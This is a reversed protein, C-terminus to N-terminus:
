SSQVAARKSASQRRMFLVVVGAFAILAVTIAIAIHVYDPTRVVYQLETPNELNVDWQTFGDATSEGNTSTVTGPARVQLHLNLISMVMARGMEAGTNQASGNSDTTPPPFPAPVTYRLTYTDNFIGTTKQFSSADFTLSKGSAGPLDSAEGLPVTKTEVIVHNENDDVTQQASFGNAEAAKVGFPDGTKDQSSALGYLQSDLVERVTVTVTQDPHFDFRYTLDAHCGSLAAASLAAAFYLRRMSGEFNTHM